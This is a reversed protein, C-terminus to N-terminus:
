ADLTRTLNVPYITVTVNDAISLFEDFSMGGESINHLDTLAVNMEPNISYETAIYDVQETDYEATIVVRMRSRGAKGM